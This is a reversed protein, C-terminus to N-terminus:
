MALPSYLTELLGGSTPFDVDVPVVARLGELGTAGMDTVSSRCYKSSWSCTAADEADAGTSRKGVGVWADTDTSHGGGGALRSVEALMVGTDVDVQPMRRMRTTRGDDDRPRVGWLVPPADLTDHVDRLAELGRERRGGATFGSGSGKVWMLSQCLVPTNGGAGGTGSCCRSRVRERERERDLSPVRPEDTPPVLLPVRM